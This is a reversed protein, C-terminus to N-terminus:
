TARDNSPEESPLLGCEQLLTKGTRSLRVRIPKGPKKTRVLLPLKPELLEQRKRSWVVTLARTSASVTQKDLDLERGLEVLGVSGRSAVGLIVRLHPLTVTVGHAQLRLLLQDLGKAPTVPNRLPLQLL